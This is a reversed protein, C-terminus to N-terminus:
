AAVLESAYFGISAKGNAPDATYYDYGIPEDYGVATIQLVKGVYEWGTEDLAKVVRVRDGRKFTM